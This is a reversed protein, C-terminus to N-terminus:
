VALFRELGALFLALKVVRGLGVVERRIRIKIKSKSGRITGGIV